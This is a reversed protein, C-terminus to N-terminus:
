HKRKAWRRFGFRLAYTDTNQDQHQHRWGFRFRLAYNNTKMLDVSMHTEVKSSISDLSNSLSSQVDSSKLIQFDAEHTDDDGIINKPTVTPCLQEGKPIVMTSELCQAQTPQHILINEAPM